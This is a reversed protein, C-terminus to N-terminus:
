GYHHMIEETHVILDLGALFTLLRLQAWDGITLTLFGNAHWRRFTSTRLALGLFATDAFFNAFDFDRFMHTRSGLAFTKTWGPQFNVLDYSILLKISKNELM